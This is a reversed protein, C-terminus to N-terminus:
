WQFHLFFFVVETLHEDSGLHEDCCSLNKWTRHGYECHHEGQLGAQLDTSTFSAWFRSARWPHKPLICSPEYTIKSAQCSQANWIEFVTEFQSIMEDLIMWIILSHDFFALPNYTFKLIGFPIKKCEIKTVKKNGSFFGCFVFGSLQGSISGHSQHDQGVQNRCCFCPSLLIQDYLCIM